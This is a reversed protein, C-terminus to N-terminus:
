KIERADTLCNVTFIDRGSRAVTVTYERLTGDGGYNSCNIRGTFSNAKFSPDHHFAPASVSEGGSMITPFAKLFDAQSCASLIAERKIHSNYILLIGCVAAPVSLIFFLALGPGSKKM